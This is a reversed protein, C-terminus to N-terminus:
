DDLRIDTKRNHLWRRTAALFYVLSILIGAPGAYVPTGPLFAAVAFAGALLLALLMHPLMFTTMHALTGSARLGFRRVTRYTEFALALLGLSWLIHAIM